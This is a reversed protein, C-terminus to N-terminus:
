AEKTHPKPNAPKNTKVRSRYDIFRQVVELLSAHRDYAYPELYYRSSGDQGFEIREDDIFLQGRQEVFSQGREIEEPIRISHGKYEQISKTKSATEKRSQGTVKKSVRKITAM